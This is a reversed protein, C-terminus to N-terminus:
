PGVANAVDNSGHAISMMMASVVQCYTWLHEVRDNYRHARSHIDRLRGSHHTVVDRTVGQLFFWKTYGWCKKPNAWRLDKVPEIFREHPRVPRRRRPRTTDLNLELDQGPHPSEAITSTGNPSRQIVTPFPIRRKERDKRRAQVEGYEDEYYNFV